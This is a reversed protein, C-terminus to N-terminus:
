NPLRFDYGNSWRHVIALFLLKNIFIKFFIKFCETSFFSFDCFRCFNNAWFLSVGAIIFFGALLFDSHSTFIKRLTLSGGRITRWLWSIFILGSLLDTFYFFAAQYENFGGSWQFLILRTQFPLSFVLFYFLYKEFSAM